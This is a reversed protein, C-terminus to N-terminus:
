GGRKEVKVFNPPGGAGGTGDGISIVRIAIQPIKNTKVRTTM